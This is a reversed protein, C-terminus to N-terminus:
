LAVSIINVLIALPQLISKSGEAKNQFYVAPSKEIIIKDLGKRVTTM